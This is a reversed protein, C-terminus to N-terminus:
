GQMARDLDIDTAEGTIGLHSTLKRIVEARHDPALHSYHRATMKPDAHGLNEAVLALPVGARVLTAAYWHRLVHFSVPPTIKARKCAVDM